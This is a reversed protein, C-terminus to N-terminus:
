APATLALLGSRQALAIAEVRGDAGLKTLINGVHFAATRETINLEAAIEKNRLGAAVRQLVQMERPTLAPAQVRAQANHAADGDMVAESGRLEDRVAEILRCLVDLQRAADNSDLHRRLAEARALMDALADDISAYTLENMWTLGSLIVSHVTHLISPCFIDIRNM